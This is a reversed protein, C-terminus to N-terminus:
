TGDTKWLERGHVGDNASFFVTDGVAAIENPYSSPQRPTPCEASVATSLGAAETTTRAGPAAFATGAGALTVAAATAATAARAGRSARARRRLVKEWSAQARAVSRQESRRRRSVVNAGASRLNGDCRRRVDVSLDEDRVGSPGLGVRGLVDNRLAETPM